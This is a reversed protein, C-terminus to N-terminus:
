NLKHQRKLSKSIKLDEYPCTAIATMLDNSVVDADKVFMSAITQIVEPFVGLVDRSIETINIGDGDDDQHQLASFYPVFIINAATQNIISAYYDRLTGSKVHNYYTDVDVAIRQINEILQDTSAVEDNM